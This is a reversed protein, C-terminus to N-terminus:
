VQANLKENCFDLAEKSSEIMKSNKKNIRLELAKEFSSKAWNYYRMELYCKGRQHELFDIYANFGNRNIITEAKEFCLLAKKFENAYMYSEGLLIFATVQKQEDQSILRLSESHYHISEDPKNIIRYLNGLTKTIFLENEDSLNEQELNEELEFIVDLVKRDDDAQERLNNNSDFYTNKFVQEVREGISNNMWM